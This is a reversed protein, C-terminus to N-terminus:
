WSSRRSRWRRRRLVTGRALRGPSHCLYSLVEEGWVAKRNRIRFSYTKWNQAICQRTPRVRLVLSRQTLGPAARILRTRRVPPWSGPLETGDGATRGADLGLAASGHDTQILVVHHHRIRFTIEEGPWRFRLGALRCQRLAPQLVLKCSEWM